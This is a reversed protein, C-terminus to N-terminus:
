RPRRAANALWAKKHANQKEAVDHAPGAAVGNRSRSGPRIASEAEVEDDDVALVGAMPAPQGLLM